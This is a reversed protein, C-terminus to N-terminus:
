QLFASDYHKLIRQLQRMSRVDAANHRPANTHCAAVHLTDCGLKNHEHRMYVASGRESRIREIKAESTWSDLTQWTHRALPIFQAHSFAPRALFHFHTNEGSDGKHLYVIREIGYGKRMLGQGYFLRDLKHWYIKILRHAEEDKISWGSTFKLTGFVDAGLGENWDALALAQRMREKYIM